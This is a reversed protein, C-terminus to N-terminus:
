VTCIIVFGMLSLIHRSSIRVSFSGRLRRLSMAPLRRRSTSMSVDAHFGPFLFAEASLFSRAKVAPICDAQVTSVMEIILVPPVFACLLQHVISSLM